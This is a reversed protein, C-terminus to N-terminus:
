SPTKALDLNFPLVRQQAGTFGHHGAVFLMPDGKPRNNRNMESLVNGGQDFLALCLFRQADEVLNGTIRPVQRREISSINVLFGPAFNRGRRQGQHGTLVFGSKAM